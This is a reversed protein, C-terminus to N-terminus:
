MELDDKIHGAMHCAYLTVDCHTFQNPFMIFVLHQFKTITTQIATQRFVHCMVHVGTSMCSTCKIPNRLNLDLQSTELIAPKWFKTM